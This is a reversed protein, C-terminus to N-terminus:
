GHKILEILRRGSYDAQIKVEFHSQPILSAVKSPWEVFNFDESYFYDDVGIDLAEEEDKIRYFDFHNITKSNYTRYENVISFTPSQVNDKVGLQSCIASILTTKGAGMEGNFIWTRYDGACSIIEKAIAHLEDLSECILNKSHLASNAM